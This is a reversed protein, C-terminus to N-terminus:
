NFNQAAALNCPEEAVAPALGNKIREIYGCLAKVTPAEFLALIPLNLGFVNNLKNILRIGILSSGGLEFFNDHLGVQEIGLFERWASVMLIELESEPQTASNREVGRKQRVKDAIPKATKPKISPACERQRLDRERGDLDASSVAIQGPPAVTLIRVFANWSEEPTMAYQDLKTEFNGYLTAQGDLLWGDWNVSFWRTKESTQTEVYADLFLNAASYAFLGIGGLTAANSSFLLCFEPAVPELAEKLVKVGAHKADLIRECQEHNLNEILRLISAGEMGAAHIVGHIAGWKQVAQAIASEMQRKDTVDARVIMVEAGAREIAKLKLIKGSVEDPGHSALWDNWSRKEPLGSRTTLVLRTGPIRALHQSLQLGIRGLGGTIFFVKGGLAQDKDPCDPLRVKEWYRVWRRDGRYAVVEDPLNARIEQALTRAWERQEQPAFSIDICRCSINPHEQPVVKCAALAMRKEPVVRDLSEIRFLENFVFCLKIPHVNDAGALAQLMSVIGYYSNTLLAPTTTKATVGWCCIIQAPMLQNTRLRSFLAQFDGPLAPNVTYECPSKEAFAAAAKVMILKGGLEPGMAAGIGPEDAFLLTVESTTQSSFPNQALPGGRWSQVYFWNALDPDRGSNGARLSRTPPDIWYDKHDFTYTPLPIRYRREDKYLSEWRVPAGLLWLRALTQQLVKSDHCNDYRHRMSNLFGPSLNVKVESRLLTTLSHGPGTELFVTFSDKLLTEIGRHFWVTHRLHRVWYQPDTVEESDVWTGTVNSIYPIRPKNFSVNRLADQFRRLIPEVTPSHSAAEIQLRRCDINLESLHARLAEIASAEGSIVCQNKGNVAALGVKGNMYEAIEEGGASVALMAGPPLETLLKARIMVISLAEALPLVGSICAAVYEGLSHGILASPVIGWDMWLRALAYEVAFLAPLGIEAQKMPDGSVTSINQNGYLAEILNFGHPLALRGCEEIYERFRPETEFLGAGMRWYQSGGGPFVFVVRPEGTDCCSDWSSEEPLTTLNEIAEETTRCLVARRYHFSKRGTQLTYTVDALNCDRNRELHAALKETASQLAEPTRASLVLSQYPRRAVQSEQHPAEELIVHANTGGIGFSSVGARRPGNHAAWETLESNVYFPSEKFEIKPNATKFHLTTPLEKNELALVTKILGAIGAAADLHGLNTKVSGLACFGKKATALQFAQTLASIEAPDGLLTGTGHCEIYTITEPDISAMAQAALVVREQGEVGPATYGLKQSGDNNIASGKIVAHITDGDRIADQLRKLVAIGAGSGFITGQANSDFARCHGDPSNIGYPQYYYGTRQPVQVSVGGALAMDSEFNLLSQCALHVAVLSSSCGTQVTIAAGKLNLKYAVRTSLFDKDNGIMVDFADEAHVERLTPLVNYLLYSSLSAGAYVAVPGPCHNPVYGAHEFAEWACELFLRHQPDMIEAERPSYGFFDADFGCVDKLIPAAKVFNMRGVTEAPVGLDVMQEPTFFTICEIGRRLNSWFEAPNESMPFRVAMGIIAIDLSNDIPSNSFGQSM